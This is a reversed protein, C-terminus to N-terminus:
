QAEVQKGGVRSPAGPVVVGLVRVVPVGLVLAAASFAHLDNFHRMATSDFHFLYAPM